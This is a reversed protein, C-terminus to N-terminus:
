TNHDIYAAHFTNEVLFIAVFDKTNTSLDFIYCFKSELRFVSWILYKKGGDQTETKHWCVLHIMELKNCLSM